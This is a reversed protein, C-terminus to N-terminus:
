ADLAAQVQGDVVPTPVSAPGGGESQPASDGEGVSGTGGSAQKGNSRFFSVEYELVKDYVQAVIDTDALEDLDFWVPKQVLSVDLHAIMACLSETDEDIGQGTPNGNEDRVCYMGGSLESKKVGLRARDKIALRKSTFQGEVRKGDDLQGSITFTNLKSM